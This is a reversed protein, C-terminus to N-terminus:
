NELEDRATADPRPAPVARAPTPMVGAAHGATVPPSGLSSPSDSPASTGSGARDAARAVDYPTIAAVGSAPTRAPTAAVLAVDSSPEAADSASVSEESDAKKKKAYTGRSWFDHVVKIRKQVVALGDLAKRKCHTNARTQHDPVRKCQDDLRRGNQHNQEVFQEIVLYLGNEFHRQFQEVAHDEMIHAKPPVTPMMERWKAMYEKVMVKAKDVDEEKREHEILIQFLEYSKTLLDIINDCLKDIVTDDVSPDKHKRLLKKADAFIATAEKKIQKLPKGSFQRKHYDERKCGHDRYIQDMPIYWGKDDKRRAKIKEDLKKYTDTKEKVLKDRAKVLVTRRDTLIKLTAEEEATMQLGKEQTNRKTVLKKRQKGEKSKDFDLVAKKTAAILNEDRPSERKAADRALALIRRREELAALTTVNNDTIKDAVKEKKRDLSDRRKGEESDDFAKVNKRANEILQDLQKYRDRMAKEPAPVLIITWEVIDAYKNLTDNDVGLGLHTHPLIYNAVVIWPLYPVIKVGLRATGKKTDDNAM